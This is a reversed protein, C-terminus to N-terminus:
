YSAEFARVQASGGWCAKAMALAASQQAPASAYKSLLLETLAAV